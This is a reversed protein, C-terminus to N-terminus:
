TKKAGRLARIVVYCLAVFVTIVLGLGCVVILVTGVGALASGGFEAGPYLRADLGCFGFGLVIGVAFGAILRLLWVSRRERSAPREDM